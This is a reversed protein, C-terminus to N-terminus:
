CTEPVVFTKGTNEEEGFVEHQPKEPVNPGRLELTVLNKYGDLALVVFRGHSTIECASIKMKPTYVAVLEGKNLDWIRISRDRCELDRSLCYGGTPDLKLSSVPATHGSLSWRCNGTILDWVLIRADELGSIVCGGQSSIELSVTNCSPKWKKFLTGSQLDYVVIFNPNPEAIEYCVCCVYNGEYTIASLATIFHHHPIRLDYLLKRSKLNWVLLPFPKQTEDGCVLVRGDGSVLLSNLFRDEGAKFTTVCDGNELNMLNIYMRNRSLAVLHSQDHLGFYPMKQNMVGKLKTLFSGSNLDFIRLERKCLVICKFQDIPILNIPHPVNQLRRVPQCNIIDWVCLEKKNTSVTVIFQDTKPLRVVLDFTKEDSDIGMLEESLLDAENETVAMLSLVPPSKCVSYVKSLSSDGNEITLENKNIKETLYKYMHSYFQNGDYNLIAAHTEIFNKLIITFQNTPHSHLNIDELIQYCNSGCVKDYIWSIDSLFPSNELNSYLQFHQYPLEDLRRRNYCKGLLNEQVVLRAQVNTPKNKWWRGNYYDYLMQHAWKKHSKFRESAARKLLNDKWQVGLAKGTMTWHLFPALYKNLRSWTLCAPSWSVYTMGSHFNEDFALLDIMESDTLSHKTCTLLALAHQVQTEGLIAELEEFMQHIQDNVHGKPLIDHENDVWWSTQWALVKSYLPITCEQVSKLVCDQIKSNVSHNYQMVSSMLISKAEAEGLIPMEIFSDENLKGSIKVHMDSSESVSIILKINDPLETPLWDINKSSYARVQDLGDLLIILPRQLCSATLLTPLVKQYTEINNTCYCKHGYNLISCQNTISSLLQEVTSSQASIGIFRVILFAEPLWLQCCQAVRALLTTKGSGSPGYIVLPATSSGTIYEKVNNITKERDTSCQAAKQCFTTQQNLEEFLTAEIGYSPKLMTKNQHEDIITKIMESLHKRLHHVVNALYEEHEPIKVDLGGEVYKVPIRVIHKEALQNKLDKQLIDLRRHAEAKGPSMNEPTKAIPTYVRNLWICRKALEQSMFVTNHVEQEVVTTLYTDRLEQSFVTILVALMKDIEIAWEAFARERDQLSTEKFGPIHCSIPRLRYCPPQAHSDLIYWKSLLGQASQNEASEMAMNFDQCEITIPLLQTGLSNNLFLVPIIYAVEMQRTLEGICLEPFEHDQQKELLTKWHLDVIHLEYGRSRCNARLEPYIVNHLAGKEVNCDQSDAACVYIVIKRSKLVTKSQAIKGMILNQLNESLAGVEKPVNGDFIKEFEKPSQNGPPSSLSVSDSVSSITAGKFAKTFSPKKELTSSTSSPINGSPLQPKGATTPELIVGSHPTIHNLLTQQKETPLSSRVQYSGSEESRQSMNDKDKHAQGSSCSNGM